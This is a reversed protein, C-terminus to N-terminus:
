PAAIPRVSAAPNFFRLRRLLPISLMALNNWGPLAFALLLAALAALPMILTGRREGLVADPPAHPDLLPPRLAALACASKLLATLLLCAGYFVFPVPNPATQGLLASAFPLFAVSMLLLLNWWLLARDVRVILSLLKLHQMWIMGVVLFSFAFSLFSPLLERLAALWAATGADRPLHPIRIEIALLTIAIAFVGDSFLTLRDLGRHGHHWDRM